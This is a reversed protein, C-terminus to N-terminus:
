IISHEMRIKGALIIIKLMRDGDDISSIPSMFFTESYNIIEYSNMVLQDFFDQIKENLEHEDSYSIDKEFRKYSIYKLM